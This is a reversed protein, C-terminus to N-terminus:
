AANDIRRKIEEAKQKDNQTVAEVVQETHQKVIGRLDKSYDVLIKKLKAKQDATIPM